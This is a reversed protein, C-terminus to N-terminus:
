RGARVTSKRSPRHAASPAPASSATPAYKAYLQEIDLQFGEQLATFRWECDSVRQVQGVKVGWTDHLSECDLDCRVREKMTKRDCLRLWATPLDAFSQGRNPADYILICFVIQHVKKDMGWLNVLVQEDDMATGEGDRQDGKHVISKDATQLHNFYVFYDESVLRGDHDLGMVVVDLDYKEGENHPVEDWGLGFMGQEDTVSKHVHPPLWNRRFPSCLDRFNAHLPETEVLFMWELGSRSMRGFQVATVGESYESVDVDYRFIDKGTRADDLRIWARKLTEFSQKRYKAKHINVVFSIQQIHPNLQYLELEVTEETDGHGSKVDKLLRITKTTNSPNGYYVFDKQSHLRGDRDTAFVLLDLDYGPGMVNEWGCAVGFVNTGPCAHTINLRDGRVLSGVEQKALWSGNRLAACLAAFGCRVGLGTFHFASFQGDKQRSLRGLEACTEHMLSAPLDHVCLETENGTTRCMYMRLTANMVNAFSCFPQCADSLIAIVALHHVQENIRSLQLEIVDTDGDSDGPNTVGMHLIGPSRCNLATVLHGVLCGTQSLPAILIELKPTPRGREQVPFWRFGLYTTDIQQYDQLNYTEGPGRKLASATPKMFLQYAGRSSCQHQNNAACFSWTSNQCQLRAVEVTTTGHRFPGTLTTRGVECYRSGFKDYCICTCSRVNQDWSQAVQMANRINVAVAVEKVGAVKARYVSLKLTEEHGEWGGDEHVLAELASSQHGFYVVDYMSRCTGAANLCYAIVDLECSVPEGDSTYSPILDWQMAVWIHKSQRADVVIAEEKSPDLVAAPRHQAIWTNMETNVKAEVM